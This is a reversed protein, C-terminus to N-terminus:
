QPKHVVYTVVGWVQFDSSPMIEIPEFDPNAPVLFFKNKVKELKKVTFEGDLIAVVVQGNKPTVARDVILLDGSHIGAEVMSNGQVRVFFTAAAHNILFKNLDLRDEVFDDAPSPFGAAVSSGYLPFVQSGDAELGHISVIKLDSKIM